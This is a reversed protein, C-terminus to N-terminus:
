VKMACIHGLNDLIRGLHSNLTYDISRERYALRSMIDLLTKVQMKEISHKNHINLSNNTKNSLSFNLYSLRLFKCLIDALNNRKRLFTSFEESRRDVLLSFYM